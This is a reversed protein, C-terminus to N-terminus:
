FVDDIESENIILEAKSTSYFTDYNTKDKSEIKKFMLVLTAVLKFGKLQTLLDVPKSEFASETDKFQLEM